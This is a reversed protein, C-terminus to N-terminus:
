SIAPRRTGTRVRRAVLLGTVGILMVAAVFILAIQWGVLGAHSHVAQTAPEAAGGDPPALLHASAASATMILTLAAAALGSLTTVIRRM